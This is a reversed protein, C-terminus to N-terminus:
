STRSAQWRRLGVESFRLVKRSLRRTFPLRPAHRYLWRPTVGLLIAAQEPTMLRDPPAPNQPPKSVDEAQTTLIRAVLASQVIAVQALLALAADQALTSAARPDSAIQDLQAFLKM